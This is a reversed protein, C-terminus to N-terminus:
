AQWPERHDAALQSHGSVPESPGILIETIVASPSRGARITELMRAAEWPLTILYEKSGAIRQRERYRRQREKGAKRRKALSGAKLRPM